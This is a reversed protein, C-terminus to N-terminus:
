GFGWVLLTDAYPQQSATFIVIESLDKLSELFERMYPRVKCWFRLTEGKFLVQFEFDFTEPRRLTVCHILTEDLDLVLTKKQSNIPLDVSPLLPTFQVASNWLSETFIQSSCSKLSTVMQKMSNVVSLPVIFADTIDAFPLIQFPDELQEKNKTSQPIAQTVLSDAVSFRGTLSKKEQNTGSQNNLENERGQAKSTIPMANAFDDIKSQKLEAQNSHTNPTTSTFKLANQLRASLLSSPTLSNQKGTPALSSKKTPTQPLQSPPATSRLPLPTFYDTIKKNISRKIAAAQKANPCENPTSFQEPKDSSKLNTTSPTSDDTKCNTKLM